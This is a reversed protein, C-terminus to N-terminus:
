KQVKQIIEAMLAYLLVNSSEFTPVFHWYFLGQDFDHKNKVFKKGTVIFKTIKDEELWPL